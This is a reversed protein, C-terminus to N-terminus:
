ASAAPLRGTLYRQLAPAGLAIVGESDMSALPEFRVVYEGSPGVVSSVGIPATSAVM